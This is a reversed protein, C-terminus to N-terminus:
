FVGYSLIRIQCNNFSLESVVAKSDFLPSPQSNDFDILAFTKQTGLTGDPNKPISISGPNLFFLDDDQELLPIHTHGSIVLTGSPLLEKLKERTFLHGHHIFIRQGDIFLQTSSDLCPFSLMMQDVESDCNGRVGVIKQTYNNLLCATEKTNYGSPLNNRPGHNLYDGVVVLLDCRQAEFFALAKQLDDASGHIDSIVLIKM